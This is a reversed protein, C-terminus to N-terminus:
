KKSPAHCILNVTIPKKKVTFHKVPSGPSNEVLGWYYGKPLKSGASIVTYKGAPLKISVKGKSNTTVTAVYKLSGKASTTVVIFSSNPVAKGGAKLTFTVKVKATAAFSISVFSSLLVFVLLFSILRKAM